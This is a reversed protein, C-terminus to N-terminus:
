LGVAGGAGLPAALWPLLLTHVRDALAIAASDAPLSADPRLAHWRVGLPLLDPRTEDAGGIRIVAETAGLPWAPNRLYARAGEDGEVLAVVVTRVPYRYFRSTYSLVRGVELAAATSVNRGGVGADFPAMLVVATDRLSPHYGALLGLLNRSTDPAIGWPQVYGPQAPQLGLTRMRSTLYLHARRHATTGPGRAQGIQGLTSLDRGISSADWVPFGPASTVPDDDPRLGSCGGAVGSLLLTLLFLFIYVSARPV